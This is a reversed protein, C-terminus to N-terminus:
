EAQTASSKEFPDSLGMKTGGTKLLRWGKGNVPRAAPIAPLELIRDKQELVAPIFRQSRIQGPENKFAQFFFLFNPPPCVYNNWHREMPPSFPLPSEILSFDQGFFETPERFERKFGVDQFLDPIDRGLRGQFRIFPRFVDRVSIQCSILLSDLALDDEKHVIDKRRSRRKPFAGRHQLPSPGFLDPSDGEGM